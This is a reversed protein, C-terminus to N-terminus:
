KEWNPVPREIREFSKALGHTSDFDILAGCIRVDGTAVTFKRPMGDLYRGVVPAIDRGLVSEYPGCMGVDTIYATGRPLVRGDATPVHTHTGVVAGSRGDLFWGFAIKEATTEAHIEVLFADVESQKEELVRQACLFPDECSVKMFHRGLVTFVGLRFGSAAELKLFSRGPCAAPLNAPRCLFELSDIEDSFGRQDWCHDGLTIGDVGAANLMRAIGSHIGAGGAANEGNAVVLDVSYEEKLKSLEASVASRGPHGVIDGLFLVRPM